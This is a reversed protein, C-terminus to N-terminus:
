ERLLAAIFRAVSSRALSGDSVDRPMVMAATVGPQHLTRQSVLTYGDHAALSVTNSLRHPLLCLLQPQVEASERGAIM